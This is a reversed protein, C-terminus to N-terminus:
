APCACSQTQTDVSIQNDDYSMTTDCFSLGAGEGYSRKEREKLREQQCEQDLECAANGGVNNKSIGEDKASLFLKRQCVIQM